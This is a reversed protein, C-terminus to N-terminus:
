IRRLAAFRHKVSSNQASLNLALARRHEAYSQQRAGESLRCVKPSPNKLLTTTCTSWWATTQLPSLTFRLLRAVADRLQGWDPGIRQRHMQDWFAPSRLLRTLPLSRAAVLGSWTCTQVARVSLESWDHLPSVDCQCSSYTSAPIM